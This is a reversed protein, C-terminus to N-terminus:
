TLIDISPLAISTDVVADNVDKAKEKVKDIIEGM